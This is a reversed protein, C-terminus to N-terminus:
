AKNWGWPNRLTAEKGDFGILTYIGDPLQILAVDTPSLKFTEDLTLEDTPAGTM